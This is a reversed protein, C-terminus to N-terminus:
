PYVRERGPASRKRRGGGPRRISWGGGSWRRIQCRARQRPPLLSKGERRRRWLRPRCARLARESRRPPWPGRNSPCAGERSRRTPTPSSSTGAGWGRRRCPRHGSPASGSSASRRRSPWRRRPTAPRRACRRRLGTRPPRPRRSRSAGHPLRGAWPERAPGVWPVVAPLPPPEYWPAPRPQAMWTASSAGGDRRERLRRPLAPRSALPARPRVLRRAPGPGPWSLSLRALPFEVGGAAASTRSAIRGSHHAGAAWQLGLRERPSGPRYPEM